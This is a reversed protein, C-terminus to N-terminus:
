ATLSIYKKVKNFKRLLCICNPDRYLSNILKIMELTNVCMLRYKRDCESYIRTEIDHKKLIEQIYKLPSVSACTIHMYTYNRDSYFCGDGDIYGRLFDFFLVDNVIPYKDKKSKNKEIGHSMLDLVIQKSFVRIGSINGVNGTHGCIITTKADKHTRLNGGGLATDLKDIIYEDGSQLEIGLEYSSKLEDYCIWGDAFILGLFYAKEPTDIKNFYEHNIQRRKHLGSKRAIYHIQRDTFGLEKGIESGTSNPYHVTLYDVDESSYLPERKKFYHNCVGSVVSEPLNLQKALERSSYYKYNDRMYEFQQQTYKHNKKVGLSNAKDRISSETKHLIKAIESTDMTPYNNIIFDIESQTYKIPKKFIGLKSAERRIRKEKFGLKDGIEKYTMDMYHDKLFKIDEETFVQWQSM